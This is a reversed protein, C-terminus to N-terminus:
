ITLKMQGLQILLPKKYLKNHQNKKKIKKTSEQVIYMEILGSIFLIKVQMKALM